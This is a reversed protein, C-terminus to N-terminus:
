VHPVEPVKCDDSLCDTITITGIEFDLCDGGRADWCVTWRDPFNTPDLVEVNFGLRRLEDVDKLLLERAEAETQVTVCGGVELPLCHWHENM